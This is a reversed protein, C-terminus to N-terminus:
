YLIFKIEMINGKFGLFRRILIVLIILKFVDLLVLIGGIFIEKGGEVILFELVIYVRIMFLYCCIDNDVWKYFKCLKYRKVGYEVM